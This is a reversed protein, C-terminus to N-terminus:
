VQTVTRGIKRFGDAMQTMLSHTDRALRRDPFSLRAIDEVLGPKQVLHDFDFGVQKRALQELADLADLALHPPQFSRGFSRPQDVEVNQEIPARNYLRGFQLDRM